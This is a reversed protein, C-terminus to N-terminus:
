KAIDKRVAEKRSVFALKLFKIKEQNNGIQIGWRNEFFTLLRIGRELIDRATWRELCAVENEAYSGYKYGIKNTETGLKDIFCNNQFSSNKASSLPLLNGLSHRLISREKASYKSFHDTWCRKRTIQPYIHEITYYENRFEQNDNTFEDWEIKQRDTKTQSKLHLDYEFLFYRIGSWQYFNGKKFQERMFQVLYKDRRLRDVMIELKNIAKDSSLEKNANRLAFDVISGLDVVVFREQLITMM